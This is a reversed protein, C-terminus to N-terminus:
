QGLISGGSMYLEEGEETAGVRISIGDVEPADWNREEHLAGRAVYMELESLDGYPENCRFLRIFGKELLFQTAQLALRKREFESMGPVKSNVEWLLEWLGAYDEICAWLLTKLIEEILNLNM